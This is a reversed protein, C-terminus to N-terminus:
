TLIDQMKKREILRKEVIQRALSNAWKLMVLKQEEFWDGHIYSADKRLYEESSSLDSATDVELPLGSRGMTREAANEKKEDDSVEADNPDRQRRKRIAGIGQTSMQFIEGLSGKHKKALKKVYKLDDEHEKQELEKVKQHTDQDEEGSFIPEFNYFRFLPRLFLPSPLPPLRPANHCLM